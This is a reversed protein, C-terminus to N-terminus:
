LVDELFSWVTVLPFSHVIKSLIIRVASNRQKVFISFAM